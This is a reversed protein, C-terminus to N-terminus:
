HCVIVETEVLNLIYSVLGVTQTESSLFDDILKLLEDKNLISLLNHFVQENSSVLELSQTEFHIPQKPRFWSATAQHSELLSLKIDALWKQVAKSQNKEFTPVMLEFNNKSMQPFRLIKEELEAASTNIKTTAEKIKTDVDHIKRGLSLIEEMLKLADERPAHTTKKQYDVFDDNRFNLKYPKEEVEAIPDQLLIRRAGVNYKRLLSRREKELKTIEDSHHFEVILCDDTLKCEYCVNEGFFYGKIQEIMVSSKSALQGFVVDLDKVSLNTSVSVNASTAM